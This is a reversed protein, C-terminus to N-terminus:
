KACGGVRYERSPPFSEVYSNTSFHILSWGIETADNRDVTGCCYQELPTYALKVVMRKGQQSPPNSAPRNQPPRSASFDLRRPSAKNHTTHPPRNRQKKKQFPISAKTKHLSTPEEDYYTPNSAGFLCYHLSAHAPLYIVILQSVMTIFQM